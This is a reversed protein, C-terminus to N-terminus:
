SVQERCGDEWQVLVGDPGPERVFCPRWLPQGREEEAARSRAAYDPHLSSGSQRFGPVPRSGPGSGSGSTPM